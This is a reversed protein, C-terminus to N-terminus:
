GSTKGYLFSDMADKPKPQTVEPLRCLVMVREVRQKPVGLRCAIVAADTHGQAMEAAIQTYLSKM